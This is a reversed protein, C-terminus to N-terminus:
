YNDLGIAHDLDYGWIGRTTQCQQEQYESRFCKADNGLNTVKGEGLFGNSVKEVDDTSDRSYDELGTRYVTWIITVHSSVAKWKIRFCTPQLKELLKM